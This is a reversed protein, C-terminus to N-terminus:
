DVEVGKTDPTDLTYTVNDDGAITVLSSYGVFKTDCVTQEGNGSAFDISPHTTEYLEDAGDLIVEHGICATFNPVEYPFSLTESVAENGSDDTAIALKYSVAEPDKHEANELSKIRKNYYDQKESVDTESLWTKLQKLNVEVNSEFGPKLIDGAKSVIEDDSLGDLDGFLIQQGALSYSTVKGDKFVLVSSVSDDKAIPESM